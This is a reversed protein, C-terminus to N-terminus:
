ASGGGGPPNPIVAKCGGTVATILGTQVNVTLIVACSSNPPCTYQPVAFFRGDPTRYTQAPCTIPCTPCPPGVQALSVGGSALLAVALAMLRGLKSHGAM